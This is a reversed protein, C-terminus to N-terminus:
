IRQPMSMRGGLAGKVGGGDLKQGEDGIEQRRM